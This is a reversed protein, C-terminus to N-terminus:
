SGTSRRRPCGSSPFARPHVRAKASRPGTSRPARRLLVKHGNALATALHVSLTTKGVGGKQNSLAIVPM